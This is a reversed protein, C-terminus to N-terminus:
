EGLIAGHAGGDVLHPLLPQGLEGGLREGVVLLLQAVTLLAHDAFGLDLRQGVHGVGLLQRRGVGLHEVLGHHQLQVAPEAGAHPHGPGLRQDLDLVPEGEEVHDHALHEVQALAVVRPQRQEQHVAERRAVVRQGREGAVGLQGDVPQRQVEELALHRLQALVVELRDRPRGVRRQFPRRRSV